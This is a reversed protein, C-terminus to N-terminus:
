SRELESCSMRHHVIGGAQPYAECETCLLGHGVAVIEYLVDPVDERSAELLDVENEALTLVHALRAKAEKGKV